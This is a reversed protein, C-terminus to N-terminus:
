YPNVKEPNAQINERQLFARLTKQYNELSELAIYEDDGHQYEGAIGFECTANGVDGYFRGDSSGHRQVLRFPKGELQEAAATLNLLQANKPDAYLPASFDHLAAIEANPALQRIFNTFKQVNCMRPDDPVFRGNLKVTAQDPITTHADSTGVIGTVTMTSDTTEETPVPYYTQLAHIFDHAQMVANDGKWPYAGHASKGRFSIDAAIVGKSRNAIEYTGPIRGCEGCIVFDSRVGQRVQYLTGDKGASEEDTVIQLGLAFPVQDVFECFVEAMVVCAAKMDYAGRGYLRGDKVFPKYQDPKGPVVDVHGNFIIHFQKPRKSGKYALFSPKGNSEFQEITIEKGCKLLLEVICEYARRLGSPNQATSEIAILTELTHIRQENTM